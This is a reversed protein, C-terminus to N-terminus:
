IVLDVKSLQVVNVNTLFFFFPLTKVISKNKRFHM